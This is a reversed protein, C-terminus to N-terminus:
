FSIQWWPGFIGTYGMIAMIISIATWGFFMIVLGKGVSSWIAKIKVLVNPNGLSTYFLIGSVVIMVVLVLPMLNWFLFDLIIKIMIFLHSFRCSERENWPTDPNNYNLGCPVFGTGTMTGEHFVFHGEGIDGSDECDRDICAKVTWYNDGVCELPVSTKIEQIINSFIINGNCSVSLGYYNAGLVSNWSLEIRNHQNSFYDASPPGLNDPTDLTLTRFLRTESKDGCVQGQTDNCSKVSWTYFTNQKLVPYGISARNNTVVTETGNFDLVYSRAGPVRQWGLELPILVSEADTEPFELIPSRGTTKFYRESWEKECKSAVTDWCSRVRWRYLSDLDLKFGDRPLIVEHIRIVEGEEGGSGSEVIENLLRENNENYLEFVYSNAGLSSRWRFSVPWAISNNGQPDNSPSLLNPADVIVEDSVRIFRWPTYENCEADNDEGLCARVRWRYDAYDSKTFLLFDENRVHTPPTRAPPSAIRLIAGGMVEVLPHNKWTRWFILLPHQQQVQVEYRDPPLYITEEQGAITVTEEFRMECWRLNADELRYIIEPNNETGAETGQRLIEPSDKTTMSWSSAGGCNTGDWNCCAQVTWNYSDSPKLLCNEALFRNGRLTASFPNGEEIYSFPTIASSYEEKDPDYPNEDGGVIAYSALVNNLSATSGGSALCPVTGIWPYQDPITLLALPDVAKGNLKIEFHLHAGTSVGTSGMVGIISDSRIRVNQYIPEKTEPDIGTQRVGWIEGGTTIRDGSRIGGYQDSGSFSDLHMYRTEKTTDDSLFDFKYASHNITVMNGAGRADGAFTITGPASAYIPIWPSCSIRLCVNAGFRIGYSVCSCRGGHGVDIGNHFGWKPPIDWHRWRNGYCSTISRVNHPTPRIFRYRGNISVFQGDISSGQSLDLNPLSSFVPFSGDGTYDHSFDFSGGAGPPANTNDITINYSIPGKEAMNGFGAVNSWTLDAPLSVNLNSSSGNYAPNVPTELCNGQCNYSPISTQWNTQGSDCRLWSDLNKFVTPSTYYYSWSGCGGGGCGDSWCSRERRYERHLINAGCHNGDCRYENRVLEDDTWSSYSPECEEALATNSVNNQFSLFSGGLLIALLVIPIVLFIKKRNM